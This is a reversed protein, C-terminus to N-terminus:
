RCAALPLRCAALPLRCIIHEGAPGDFSEQFVKVGNGAGLFFRAILM